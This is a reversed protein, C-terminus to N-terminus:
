GMDSRVVGLDIDDQTIIHTAHCTFPADVTWPEALNGDACEFATVGTVTM